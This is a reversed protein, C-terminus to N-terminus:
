QESVVLNLRLIEKKLEKNEERLNFINLGQQKHLYELNRLRILRKKVEEASLGKKSMDWKAM